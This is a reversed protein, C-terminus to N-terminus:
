SSLFYVKMGLNGLSVTDGDKVQVMEQPQLQVGNVFTGNASGFDRVYLKNEKKVLAAHKRSVGMKYGGYDQLDIEPVFRSYQDRRGIVVDRESPEIELALDFDNLVVRFRMGQKFSDSGTNKIDELKQFEIEQTALKRTALTENVTLMNGCNACLMAGPRNKFGCVTCALPFNSM